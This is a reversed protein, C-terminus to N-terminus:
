MVMALEFTPLIIALMVAALIVGLVLTIIPEILKNIRRIAHRYATEFYISCKELTQPLGGTEEGV